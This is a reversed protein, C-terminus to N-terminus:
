ISLLDTAQAFVMNYSVPIWQERDMLDMHYIKLGSIM